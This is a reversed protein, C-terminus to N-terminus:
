VRKAEIQHELRTLTRDAEKLITEPCLNYHAVVAMLAIVVDAAEEEPSTKGKGRLAEIFESVELHVYCGGPLASKDWANAKSIVGIRDRLQTLSIM